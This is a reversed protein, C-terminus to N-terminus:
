AGSRTVVVPDFAVVCYPFPPYLPEPKEDDAEAARKAELRANKDLGFGNSEDIQETDSM